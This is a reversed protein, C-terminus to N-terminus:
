DSPTLNLDGGARLMDEPSLLAQEHAVVGFYGQEVVSGGTADDTVNADHGGKLRCRNHAPTTSWLAARRRTTSVARAQSRPSSNPRRHGM